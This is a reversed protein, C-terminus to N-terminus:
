KSIAHTWELIPPQGPVIDPDREGFFIQPVTGSSFDRLVVFRPMELCSDRETGRFLTQHTNHKRIFTTHSYKLM